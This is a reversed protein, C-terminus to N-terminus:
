YFHESILIFGLRYEGGFFHCQFDDSSGDSSFQNLISQLHFAEITNQIDFSGTGTLDTGSFDTEKTVEQRRKYDAM